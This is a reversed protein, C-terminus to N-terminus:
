ANGEDELGAELEASCPGRSWAACEYHGHKCAPAGTTAWNAAQLARVLALYRRVTLRKGRPTILTEAM